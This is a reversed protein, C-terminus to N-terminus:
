NPNTANITAYTTIIGSNGSNRTIQPKIQDGNVALLPYTKTTSQADSGVAVLAEVPDALNGFQGGITVTDGVAEVSLTNESVLTITGATVSDITCPSAVTCNADNFSSGTIIITDEEAFGATLFGSGSDTITDPNSNVFAITTATITTDISKVWKFRFDVTGGSSEVTFDFSIAGRFPESFINEFVGNIENVLKWGEITTGETLAASTTGFVMDTFTGNVITGNAFINDNVFGNAIFKGNEKGPNESSLVRKDVQNLGSTDWTGTQTAGFTESFDFSNTQINYLTHGGDYETALDSSSTLSDLIVLGHATSTVTVGNMLYSGTGTAVFAVSTTSVQLEFTTATTLTVIGTVNYTTESFTSTTVTSGLFPSTGAHTFVAIGGNDTVSTVATAAISNDAVATYTGTTGGTVDFLDASSDVTSNGKVNVHGTSSYDPDIRIFNAFSDSDLINDYFQLQGSNSGSVEFANIDTGGFSLVISDIISVSTCNIFQLGSDIIEYLTGPSFFDGANRVTGLSSYNNFDPFKFSIFGGDIDLLTGTGSGEFVVDFIAFSVIDTGRFQADTTNTYTITNKNRNTTLFQVSGGAPIDAPLTQTIPAMIVYTAGDILDINVGVNVTGMDSEQFVQVVNGGAFSIKGSNTGDTYNGIHDIGFIEVEDATLVTLPADDTFAVDTSNTTANSDVTVATDSEISLVTFIDDDVKFAAGVSLETTFLTSLGTISASGLTGTVTGTLQVDLDGHMTTKGNVHFRSTPVLTNVGVFNTTSTFVSGSKVTGGSSSISINGSTASLSVLGSTSSMGVNGTASFLSLDDDDTEILLEISSAISVLANSTSNDNISLMEIGSANNLIFSKEGTSPSIIINGTVTLDGDASIDGDTHIGRLGVNLGSAYLNNNIVANNTVSIDNTELVGISATPLDAGNLNIISLSTGAFNATYAYKGAVFLSRPQNLNTADSFIATIAPTTPDSIDVVTISNGSTSNVYAYNGAVQVSFATNLNTSDLLTGTLTPTTPDSIDIINFQNGLTVLYAYRGVVYIGRPFIFNTLDILSGALVPTTPDSIDVIALSSSSEGAIYAYNGDVYLERPGDINTSDILTGTLVPTTPDSIDVIALGDANALTIYVYKGSLYINRAGALNIADILSGKLVPTTPDSIDVIALSTSTGASVYAYDGSVVVDNPGDMNTADTFSSIIVPALPDSIDIINLTDATSGATVYAYRGVVYVANAQLLKTADVVTGALSPTGPTQSVDGSVTLNADLIIEGSTPAITLNSDNDYLYVNGVAGNTVYLSAGDYYIGFPSSLEASIVINNESDVATSLNYDTLTIRYIFNDDANSIYMTSGDDNFSIAHISASSIIGTYSNGSFSATSLDDVTTFSYQNVGQGSNDLVFLETDDANFALGTAFTGESTTSLVNTSFTVTDSFDFGTALNYQRVNSAECVYMRDGAINFTLGKVITFESSLDVFLSDYTATSPDGPTSLTYQYVKLNDGGLVFMKSKDSNFAVGQPTTDEVSTTAFTNSYTFDANVTFSAYNTADYSLRLQELTSLPNLLVLPLVTGIGVFNTAGDVFVANTNLKIDGSTSQLLVDGTTSSMSVLGSSSSMGVNGSTSSLSLDDDVTSILLEISSAIEAFGSASVDGIKIIEVSSSNNLVIESDGSSPTLTLNSASLDGTVALNQAITVLGASDITLREPSGSGTRFELSGTTSEATIALGFADPSTLSPPHSSVTVRDRFYFRDAGGSNDFQAIIGFENATGSGHVHLRVSPANTGIGVLGTLDNAFILGNVADFTGDVTLDDFTPSDTTDLAQGFELATGGSNGKVHGSATITSATDTLETWEDFASSHSDADWLSINSAFSTTQVGATNASYRIGTDVVLDGVSYNTGSVWSPNYAVGIMTDDALIGLMQNIESTNHLMEVLHGFNGNRDNFSIIETGLGDAQTNRSGISSGTDPQPLHISADNPDTNLLITRRAMMRDTTLSDSFNGKQVWNDTFNLWITGDFEIFLGTMDGSIGAPTAQNSRSDTTVSAFYKSSPTYGFAEVTTVKAENLTINTETETEYHEFALEDTSTIAKIRWSEDTNADGEIYITGVPNAGTLLTGEGGQIPIGFVPSSFLAFILVAISKFMINKM